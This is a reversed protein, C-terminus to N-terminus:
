FCLPLELQFCNSAIMSAMIAKMHGSLWCITRRSPWHMRPHATVSSAITLKYSALFYPSRIVQKSTGGHRINAGHFYHFYHQELFMYSIKLFPDALWGLIVRANFAKSHLWPFTHVTLSLICNNPAGGDSPVHQAIQLAGIGSTMM